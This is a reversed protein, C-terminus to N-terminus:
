QRRNRNITMERHKEGWKCMSIIVGSLTYSYETLSYEVTVPKTELVTRCVLGNLELEHLEKSLIRPTIGATRSLENFKMKGASLIFLLVLKWKGGVIDVTDQITFRAHSVNIDKSRM